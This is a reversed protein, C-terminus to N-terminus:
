RSPPRKIASRPRVNDSTSRVHKNEFSLNGMTADSGKVKVEQFHASKRSVKNRDRVVKAKCVGKQVKHLEIGREGIRQKVEEFKDRSKKKNMGDLGIKGAISKIEIMEKQLRKVAEEKDSEGRKRGSKLQDQLQKVESSLKSNNLELEESHNQINEIHLKLEHETRIHNRVEAEIKQLMKELQESKKLIEVKESSLTQKKYSLLSSVLDNLNDIIEDASIENITLIEEETIDSEELKCNYMFSELFLVRLKSTINTLDTM